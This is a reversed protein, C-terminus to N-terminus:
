KVRRQVTSFSPVFYNIFESFLYIMMQLFDLLIYCSFYVWYRGGQMKVLMKLGIM